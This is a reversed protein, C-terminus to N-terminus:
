AMAYARSFAYENAFVMADIEDCRHEESKNQLKRYKGRINDIVFQETFSCDEYDRDFEHQFICM